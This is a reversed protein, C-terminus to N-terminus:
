HPKQPPGYVVTPKEARDYLPQVRQLAAKLQQIRNADSPHTSLLENGPEGVAAFKEHLTLAAAPNYGARAALEFGVLDAEYEFDRSFKKTILTAGVNAVKNGNQGLGLYLSAAASGLHTARDKAITQRSHERIAHSIEHAMVAAVEDDTLQLRTLLGMYFIIKGGASCSANIQKDIILNVEWRWDSTRSNWEVTFPLIRNAIARLRELQPNPPSVVAGKTAYESLKENYFVVAQNEVKAASVFGILRSQPRLLPRVGEGEAIQASLPMTSSISLVFLAYRSFSAYKMMPFDINTM